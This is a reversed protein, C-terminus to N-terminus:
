LFTSLKHTPDGLYNKITEFVWQQIEEDVGMFHQKVFELTLPDPLQNKETDIMGEFIDNKSLDITLAFARDFGITYKSRDDPYKTSPHKSRDITWTEAYYDFIKHETM